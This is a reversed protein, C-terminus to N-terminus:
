PQGDRLTRFSARIEEVFFAPQEWAAFHGGKPAKNYHILKPYARKAWNEPATYIEEPYATVAVPIKIGRPDFFGGTPHHALAGTMQTFRPRKQKENEDKLCRTCFSAADPFSYRARGRERNTPRM